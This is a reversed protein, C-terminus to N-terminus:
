SQECMRRLRARGRTFAGEATKAPIDLRQAVEATSLGAARALVVQRERGPLRDVMAMLWRGLQRDCVADEPGPAPANVAARAWLRRQRNIARYHDACLRLATSTLFSGVRDEDLRLFCYARLLAEQVCDEVDRPDALRAQVLRRLRERHALLLAWRDTTVTEGSMTGITPRGPRGSMPVGGWIPGCM